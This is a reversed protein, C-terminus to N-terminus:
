IQGCPVIDSKLVTTYKSINYIYVVHIYVHLIYTCQIYM